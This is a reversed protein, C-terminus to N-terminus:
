HQTTERNMYILNLEKCKQLDLIKLMRKTPINSRLNLVTREVPIIGKFDDTNVEAKIYMENYLENYEGSEFESDNTNNGGKYNILNILDVWNNVFLFFFSGWENFAINRGLVINPAENIIELVGLHKLDLNELVLEDLILGLGDITFMSLQGENFGLISRIGKLIKTRTSQNVEFEPYDEEITLNLQNAKFERLMKILLNSFDINPNLFFRKKLVIVLDINNGEMPQHDMIKILICNLFHMEVFLGFEGGSKRDEDLAYRIKSIIEDTMMKYVGGELIRVM